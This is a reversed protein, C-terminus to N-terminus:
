YSGASDFSGGGKNGKGRGGQNGRFKKGQGRWNGGSHHDGRGGGGPARKMWNPMEVPPRQEKPRGGRDPVAPILIRNVSSKTNKVLEASSTKELILHSERAAIVDSLKVFPKNKLMKRLPMYAELIKKEKGKSGEGWKFSQITVDLRTLLMERRVSYESLFDEYLTNVFEWQDETLTETLIPPSICEPMSEVFSQVKKVIESFCLIPNSTFDMRIHLADMTNQLSVATSSDDMEIEFVNKVEKKSQLLRATQLETCLYDLLTRRSQADLLRQSIPGNLLLKYPCHLEKLFSSVELLFSSSDETNQLANICSELGYLTQLEKSLWEVLQTFELSKTGKEIAESIAEDSTLIGSYRLCAFNDEEPLSCRQPNVVLTNSSSSGLDDLSDLIDFEM